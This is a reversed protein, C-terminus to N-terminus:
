VENLRIFRPNYIDAVEMNHDLSYTNTNYTVLISTSKSLHPHAKANYTYTTKGFIEKEPCKYIMQPKTFPGEPSDGISFAVYPSSVDYTYVCIYKGANRGKLIKSVSFECSIHELLPKAKRLDSGYGVGDYFEYSDFLEFEDPLVRSVIMQRLGYNTIYGYVYVYGDEPHNMIAGGMTVEGLAHKFFFPTRKQTQLKTAPFENQIPVKIQNVGTVKFQLGEPQSTDSEVTLPFFYLYNNIVVGDQLWLWSKAPEQLLTSSAKAEVDLYQNQHNFFEVKKLGYLGEKAEDGYNGIGPIPNISFKLFRFSKQLKIETSSTGDINRLAIFEGLDDWTSSDDSSLLRFKRIGRTSLVSHNKSYYNKINIHSVFRNTALDFIVECVEPDFGSLWGENELSDDYKILNMSVTGAIDYKQASKYFGAVNGNKQPNILFDIQGDDKSQIAMSNNTMVFPSLRQRTIRDFRGIITDGFVFLSTVPDSLDFADNGDTLNFTFIGDGGSWRDTHSLANTWQDDKEALYGKGLVITIEGDTLAELHLRNAYTTGDSNKTQVFDDIQYIVSTISVGNIEQIPYIKNLELLNKGKKVLHNLMTKGM